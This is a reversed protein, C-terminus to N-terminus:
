QKIRVSLARSDIEYNDLHHLARYMDERNTYTVFAYRSKKRGFSDRRVRSKFHSLNGFQSFLRRLYVEALSFSINCVFLSESVNSKLVPKSTNTRNNEPTELAVGVSDLSQILSNDIEVGYYMIPSDAEDQTTRPDTTEGIDKTPTYLNDDTLPENNSPSYLKDDPLHDNNSPAYDDKTPSYGNATPSYGNSIQCDEGDTPSGNTSPCYESDTPLYGTNTHPACEGITSYTKKTPSCGDRTTFHNNTSLHGNKEPSHSEPLMNNRIGAAQLALPNHPLLSLEDPAWGVIMRFKYIEEIFNQGDGTDVWECICVVSMTM